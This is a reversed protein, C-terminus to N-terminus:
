GASGHNKYLRGRGQAIQVIREAGQKELPDSLGKVSVVVWAAEAAVEAKVEARAETVPHHEANEDKRRADQSEGLTEKKEDSM